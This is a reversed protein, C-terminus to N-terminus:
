GVRVRLVAERARRSAIEQALLADVVREQNARTPEREFIRQAMDCIGNLETEHDFTSVVTSPATGSMSVEQILTALAAQHEPRQSGAAIRAMRQVTRFHYRGRAVDQLFQRETRSTNPCSCLLRRAISELEETFSRGSPLCGREANAPVAAVARHSSHNTLSMQFGSPPPTFGTFRTLSSGSGSAGTTSRTM